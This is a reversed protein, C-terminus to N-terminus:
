YAKATLPLLTPCAGLDFMHRHPIGQSVDPRPIARRWRSAAALM